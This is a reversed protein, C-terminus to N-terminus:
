RGSGPRRLQPLHGFADGVGEQDQEHEDAPRDDHAMLGELGAGGDFVDQGADDDGGDGDVGAEAQGAEGDRRGVREGLGDEALADVRGLGRDHEALEDEARQGVAPM